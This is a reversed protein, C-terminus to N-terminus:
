KCYIDAKIRERFKIEEFYTVSLIIIITQLSEWVQYTASSLTLHSHSQVINASTEWSSCLVSDSAFFHATNIVVTLWM